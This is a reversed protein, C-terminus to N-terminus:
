YIVDATLECLAIIEESKIVAKRWIAPISNYGYYLAALGGTIAGITDTDDGLNVSRLLANEFNDTTIISWVAAELSDVVYGTSEIKEEPLKAFESLNEMRKFKAWEKQYVERNYFEKAADMGTQLRDTISGGNDLISQIMFFYIGCAIQSRLHNHTLASTEHIYLIAESLTIEGSKNKIYGYLCIPMIRMIAGNGNAREGTKGCTQYDRERAYNCIADMCTNGIDFATGTPTYEGRSTWMVFRMMIDDYDITGLERISDLTALAMSGDDSWAGVPMDYTGFGDMTTLPAKKVNERTVFQVPTGLADGTVVGMMGDIWINSEIDDEKVQDNLIYIYANNHLIGDVYQEDYHEYLYEVGKKLDEERLGARHADSGVFDVLENDLLELAKKRAPEGGSGVISYANIQILCGNEKLKNFLDIEVDEMREAHSIIPIWGNKVLLGIYHLADEGSGAPFETLVYKTGNLSPIRGSYLNNIIQRSYKPDFYVESGLYLTIPINEEKVMKQLSRYQERVHSTNKEFAVSHSTAFVVEVGQEAATKLMKESMKLDVSGDDVGPIIHMHLDVMKKM